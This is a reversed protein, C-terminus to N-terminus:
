TVAGEGVDAASLSRNLEVRLSESKSQDVALAVSALVTIAVSLIRSGSVALPPAFLGASDALAATSLKGATILIFPVSYGLLKPLHALSSTYFASQLGGLCWLWWDRALFDCPIGVILLCLITPVGWAMASLNCFAAARTASGLDRALRKNMKAQVGYSAGVGLSATSYLGCLWEKGDVRDLSAAIQIVVALLLLLLGLALYKTPRLRKALCDFGFAASMMGLLVLTLCLQTGLLRAAPISLFVPAIMLGGLCSWLYKPRECAEGGQLLRMESMIECTKVHIEYSKM